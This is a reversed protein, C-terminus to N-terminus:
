EVRPLGCEARATCPSIFRQAFASHSVTYRYDRYYDRTDVDHLTQSTHCDLCHHIGLSAVFETGEEGLRVFADTLPMSDFRLFERVSTSGCVRCTDRRHISPSSGSM